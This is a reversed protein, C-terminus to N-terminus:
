VTCPQYYGSWTGWRQWGHRPLRCLPFHLNDPRGSGTGGCDGPCDLRHGSERSMIQLDHQLEVYTCSSLRDTLPFDITIDPILTPFAYHRSDCIGDRFPM